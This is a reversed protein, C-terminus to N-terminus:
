PLMGASATTSSQVRKAAEGSVVAVKAGDSLAYQGDTVVRESAKVGSDLLAEGNRSQAVTVARVRAVDDPGIM